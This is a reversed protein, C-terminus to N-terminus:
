SRALFVTRTPYAFDIKEETFRELMALNISEQINMYLGYDPSLVYYVVEFDMSSDGFDKFNVRDLKAKDLSSFIERVMGPIARMKDVPTQYTVGFGFIVRRQTMQQYNHLRSKTLDSNAMVLMEGGLSRLRTTKIGVHEVTGMLGDVVIFDGVKFPKDVFIVFSSFLDGLIQQAALAIAVGGIGLGAVATTINVGMNELIFAAIGIWVAGNLM